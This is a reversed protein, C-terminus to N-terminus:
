GDRPQGHTHCFASGPRAYARCPQGTTVAIARCRRPRQVAPLTCDSGRILLVAGFVTPAPCGPNHVTEYSALIMGDAVWTADAPWSESGCKCQIPHAWLIPDPLDVTM